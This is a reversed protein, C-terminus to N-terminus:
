VGVEVYGKIRDLRYARVDDRDTDFGVVVKGAKGENIYEPQLVRTEIVAGDGKAYRFEVGLDNNIAVNLLQENTSDGNPAVNVTVNNTVQAKAGLALIISNALELAEDPELWSADGTDSVIGIPYLDDSEDLEVRLEEGPSTFLRAM